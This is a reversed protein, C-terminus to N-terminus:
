FLEISGEISGENAPEDAVGALLRDAGVGSLLDRAQALQQMLRDQFQLNQICVAIDRALADRSAHLQPPALRSTPDAAPRGDNAGFLPIGMDSLIRAMRALANGLECIPAQSQQMSRVLLVTAQQVAAAREVATACASSRTGTGAPEEVPGPLFRPVDTNRKM